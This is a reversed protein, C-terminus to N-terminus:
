VSHVEEDDCCKTDYTYGCNHCMHRLYEVKKLKWTYRTKYEPTNFSSGCKDCNRMM